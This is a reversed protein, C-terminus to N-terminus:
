FRKFIIIFHMLSGTGADVFAGPSLPLLQGKYGKMLINQKGFVPLSVTLSKAGKAFDILSLKAEGYSNPM